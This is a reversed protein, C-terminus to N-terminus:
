GENGSLSRLLWARAMAWDKEVTSLSLGLAEAADPASLGGFFRLEVLRAHRPHLAELTSLASELDLIDLAGGAPAAGSVLAPELTLGRVGGGRRAAGRKRAHDILVQRMARAAVAQFHGRSAWATQGGAALKLWAEHVVATPQLTQNVVGQQMLRAAVGRLADYALPM